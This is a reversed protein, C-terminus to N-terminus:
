SYINFEDGFVKLAAYTNTNFLFVIVIALKAGVVIM